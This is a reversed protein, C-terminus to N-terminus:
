SETFFHSAIAAENIDDGILEAQIRGEAVVYVRDSVGIVETLDSSVLLVGAGARAYADIQAYVDAKAGVDIGVTPEDFVHVDARHIMGRAILAKQQNGGSYNGAPAATTSPRLSLREALQETEAAEQKARILGGALFGGRKLAGLTISERLPRNLALGERKRDSPYYMLGQKLMRAPSWGLCNAGGIRVEGSEVPDLGYIARAIESKGSGILGTVGVIEGARVNFTADHVSSNSLHKVDLLVEGPEVPEHLYLEGPARGIMDHVLRDASVPADHTAIYNGDRLVTIKDAIELVENMRHSVYIVGVGRETLRRVIDLLQRTEPEGLSATPEDLILLDVRGLLARCIEIIQQESRSLKGAPRGPDLDVGLQALVEVAVRDRESRDIM